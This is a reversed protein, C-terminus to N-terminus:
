RVRRFPLQRLNQNFFKGKSGAQLFKDYTEKPTRYAHTEGSKFTLHIEETKDDYGHHTTVSSDHPNMKPM